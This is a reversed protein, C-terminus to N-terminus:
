YDGLSNMALALPFVPGSGAQRLLATIVTFTWGSDVVDDILLVAGSQVQNTDITFVNDLNHAQQYSNQMEKQPSNQRIKNVVPYFPLGLRNALREAFDAVLLPRNLSPVCTVWTPSPNPQWRQIMAICGDILRNDFDNDEYKGKKVLYGWGTNGWLGLARGKEAQLSAKIIGSFGSLAQPSPWKKRPEIIHDSAMLFNKALQLKEQSYTPSLLPRGLCVACKGCTNPLPDDLATALFEMLCSQSNMYEQMQAQEQRRITKLQAIKEPNPQYNIATAYWKSGQKTVPAPSELSLLKLVKDIKGKSLNITREIEPVSLGNEAQNLANLVSQTNIDPPFVTEIFYDAIEDDEQGCLLIGYAQDVARGARGVQQYYHVVSAPRQYHIVFGLDPKDFGMGLATTAVLVKIKNNLLQEELEERNESESHYAKANINQSNLWRAVTEADRVTLTYIIGSRPLQPLTDALWALRNAPSSLSINQLQLSERTLKGRSIQLNTGLQNRIDAVVRNNATATTALVSINPPLVQLIRVIRRYDPRFDHGWDSICHAEDIVFLSVRSAIPLLVKERFNENGLREPSILLLDVQGALLEAQIREWDDTNSSNLTAAKVNIREAAAIQNRMLAILPSILLTIGRGQDRLLRTSVFYVFSKGWGTRQVVLLRSRDRVIAQIAEWQGERFNAHPNNLATRLLSLAQYQM